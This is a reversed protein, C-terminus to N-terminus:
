DEQRGSPPTNIKRGEGSTGTERSVGSGMMKTLWGWNRGGGIGRILSDSVGFERALAAARDRGGFRPARLRRYITRVQDAELKARVSKSGRQHSAQGRSLLWVREMKPRLRGRADRDAMNEQHTGAKLHRPEICGPNDCEHLVDLGAPVPGVFVEYSLRHAYQLREGDWVRGYGQPHGAGQWERCGAGGVEARAENVASRSLLRRGLDDLSKRMGMLIFKM